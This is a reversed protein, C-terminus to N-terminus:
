SQNAKRVNKGGNQHLLVQFSASMKFQFIMKHFGNELMSLRHVHHLGRYSVLDPQAEGFLILNMRLGLVDFRCCLPHKRNLHQSLKATKTTEAPVNKVNSLTKM